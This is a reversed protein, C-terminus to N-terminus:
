QFLIVCMTGYPSRISDRSYNGSKDPTKVTTARNIPRQCRHGTAKFGSKDPRRYIASSCSTSFKVICNRDQFDQHLYIDKRELPALHRYYPLTDLKQAGASRLTDYQIAKVLGRRVGKHRALSYYFGTWIYIRRM